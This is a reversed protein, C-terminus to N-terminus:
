CHYAEYYLFERELVDFNWNSLPYSNLFMGYRDITYAGPELGKPAEDLLLIKVNLWDWQKKDAEIASKWRKFQEAKCDPDYILIVHSKQRFDWLSYKVGDVDKVALDPIRKGRQLTTTLTDSM